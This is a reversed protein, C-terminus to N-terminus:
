DVLPRIADDLERKMLKKFVDAPVGNLSLDACEAAFPFMSNDITSLGGRSRFNTIELQSPRIWIRPTEEPDDFSITLLGKAGGIRGQMPEDDINHINEIAFKLAPVSTFLGVAFRAFYKRVPTRVPQKYNFAIPNHWEMFDQFSMRFQDGVRFDSSREYNENTEM